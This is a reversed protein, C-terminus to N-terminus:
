RERDFRAEQVSPGGAGKIFGEVWEQPFGECQAWFWLSEELSWGGHMWILTTQEIRMEPCVIPLVSAFNSDLVIYGGDFPFLVVAHRWDPIRYKVLLLARKSTFDTGQYKKLSM